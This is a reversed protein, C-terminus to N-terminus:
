RPFLSCLGKCTLCADLIWRVHRRAPLKPGDSVHWHHCCGSPSLFELQCHLPLADPTHSVSEYEMIDQPWPCNISTWPDHGDLFVSPKRLAVSWCRDLNYVQWFALIREGERYGSAPPELGLKERSSSPSYSADCSVGAQLGCQVALSAAASAHYSGELLRGNVLFYMSLLCSAQIVDLVKEGSRLGDRHADLAQSLFFEEHQCLPKPRSMFCAWLFIANMLAPHRQESVPLQLSDQLHGM